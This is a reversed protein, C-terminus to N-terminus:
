FYCTVSQACTPWTVARRSWGNDMSDTTRRVNWQKQRRYLCRFRLASQVPHGNWSSPASIIAVFRYSAITGSLPRRKSRECDGATGDIAGCITRSRVCTDFITAVCLSSSAFSSSTKQLDNSSHFFVRVVHHEFVNNLTVYQLMTTCSSWLQRMRSSYIM